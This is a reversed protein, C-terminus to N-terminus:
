LRLKEHRYWKFKKLSRCIAFVLHQHLLRFGCYATCMRVRQNSKRILRKCVNDGPELM